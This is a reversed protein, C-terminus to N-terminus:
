SRCDQGALGGSHRGPLRSPGFRRMSNQRLVQWLRFAGSATLPRWVSRTQRPLPRMPKSRTPPWRKPPRWSELDWMSGPSKPDDPKRMGFVGADKGEGAFCKGPAEKVADLIEQRSFQMVRNTDQCYVGVQSLFDLAAQYLNDAAKDDSPVPNEKDYKIGYAKVIKNLTPIFVKMDFDKESMIPGKIAREYVDLFNLMKTGKKAVHNHDDGVPPYFMRNVM